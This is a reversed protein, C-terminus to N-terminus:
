ISLSIVKLDKTTAHKLNRNCGASLDAATLLCEELLKLPKMDPRFGTLVHYAARAFPAGCGIATYNKYSTICNKDNTDILQDGKAFIANYSSSEIDRLRRERQMPAIFHEWIDDNLNGVKEHNISKFIKQALPVVSHSGSFAAIIDGNIHIKDYDNSWIDYNATVQGDAGVYVNGDEIFALICTM